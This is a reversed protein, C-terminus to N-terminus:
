ALRQGGAGGTWVGWGGVCVCICVGSMTQAPCPQRGQLRWGWAWKQLTYNHSGLQHAATLWWSLWVCLQHEQILWVWITKAKDWECFQGPAPVSSIPTSWNIMDARYKWSELFMAAKLAAQLCIGSIKYKFPQLCFPFSESQRWVARLMSTTSGAALLAFLALLPM